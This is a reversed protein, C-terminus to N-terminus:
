PVVRRCENDVCALDGGPCSEPELRQGACEAVFGECWREQADAIAGSTADREATAVPQLCAGFCATAPDVTTCDEDTVCGNIGAELARDVHARAQELRAGCSGDEEGDLLPNDAETHGEDGLPPSPDIMSPGCGMGFATWALTLLAFPVHSGM